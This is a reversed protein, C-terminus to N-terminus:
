ARQTGGLATLAAVVKDSWATLEDETLTRELSQFVVRLLLSYSGAAIAKGKGDRFIEVPAVSQLEEVGLGGVAAAISQWLVTDAFVFSFDREVAQFRSLERAAPRRLPRSLLVQARVEALVCTQRLKRRQAETASLEGFVAVVAGDLL